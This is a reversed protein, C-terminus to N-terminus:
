SSLLFILLLQIPISPALAAQHVHMEKKGQFMLVEGM